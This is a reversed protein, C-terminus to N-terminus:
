EIWTKGGQKLLYKANKGKGLVALTDIPIVNENITQVPKKNVPKSVKKKKRIPLFYNRGGSFNQELDSNKILQVDKKNVLPEFESEEATFFETSRQFILLYIFAVAIILLLNLWKKKM